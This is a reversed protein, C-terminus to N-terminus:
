LMAAGEFARPARGLAGTDVNDGVTSEAEGRARQPGVLIDWPSLGASARQREEFREQMVRTLRLRLGKVEQELLQLRDPAVILEEVQEELVEVRFSLEASAPLRSIQSSFDGQANDDSGAVRRKTGRPEASTAAGGSIFESATAPRMGSPSRASLTGHTVTWLDNLVQDACFRYIARGDLLNVVANFYREDQIGCRPCLARSADGNRLGDPWLVAARLTEQVSFFSDATVAQCADCKVHRRGHVVEGRTELSCTTGYSVWGM